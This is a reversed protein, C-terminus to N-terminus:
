AQLAESMEEFFAADTTMFSHIHIYTGQSYSRQMGALRTSRSVSLYQTRSSSVSDTRQYNTRSSSSAVDNALSENFYQYLLMM